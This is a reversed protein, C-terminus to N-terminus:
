QKASPSRANVSTTSLDGILLVLVTCYMFFM